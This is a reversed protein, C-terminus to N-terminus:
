AADKPTKPGFLPEPGVYIGWKVTVKPGFVSHDNSHFKSKKSRKPVKKVQKPTKKPDSGLIQTSFVRNM